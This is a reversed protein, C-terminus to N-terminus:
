RDEQLLRYVVYFAMWTIAIGTVILLGTFFIEVDGVRDNPRGRAAASACPTSRKGLEVGGQAAARAM